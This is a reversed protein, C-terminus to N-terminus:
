DTDFIIWDFTRTDTASSSWVKFLSGPTIAGLTIEGCTACPTTVAGTPIIIIKSTATVATTSISATGGSLTGSGVKGNSGTKFKVTSTATTFTLGGSQTVLGSSDVKYRESVVGSPSKPAFLIGNQAGTGTVSYTPQILLVTSGATGGSSQMIKPYIGVAYAIGSSGVFSGQGTGDRNALISVGNQNVGFTATNNQIGLMVNTGSTALTTYNQGAFTGTQATSLNGNIDVSFKSAAGVQLDILKPIGSFASATVNLKIATPTGTTSWTQAMNFLSTSASGIITAGRLDLTATPSVTGIGLSKTTSNYFLNSNDQSFSGSSTFMVSGNTWSTSSNTGGNAYPLVGTVGTSLDIAPVSRLYHALMGATDTYKVRLDIRASMFATDPIDSTMAYTGSKNPWKQNRVTTLKESTQYISNGTSDLMQRIPYYKDAGINYGFGELIYGNHGATPVSIDWYDPYYSSTYGAANSLLIGTDATNNRRLIKSFTMRANTTDIDHKTAIVTSTDTYIAAKARATTFYENNSGEFVSDTTYDTSNPVVSGTRGHFATVTGGSLRLWNAYSSSPTAYLIFSINSDYRISVAGVASSHGLMQATTTDVTVSTIAVVEIQSSPVKGSGNLSAVGNAAAKQSWAIFGGNSNSDFGTLSKLSVGNKMYKPLGTTSDVYLMNATDVWKAKYRANVTVKPLHFGSDVKMNGLVEVTGNKTGIPPVYQASAQIGVFLLALYICIIYKIKM